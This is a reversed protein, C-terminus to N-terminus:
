GRRDAGVGLRDAFQCLPAMGVRRWMGVGGTVGTPSPIPLPMPSRRAKAPSSALQLTTYPLMYPPNRSNSRQLMFPPSPVLISSAVWVAIITHAILDAPNADFAVRRLACVALRVHQLARVAIADPIAPVALADSRADPSELGKFHSPRSARSPTTLPPALASYSSYM